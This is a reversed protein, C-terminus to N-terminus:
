YDSILLTHRDVILGLRAILVRLVHQRLRLHTSLPDQRHLPISPICVLQALSLSVVFALHCSNSICYLSYLSLSHEPELM